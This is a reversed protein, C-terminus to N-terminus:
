KISQQLKAILQRIRDKSSLTKAAPFQSKYKKAFEVVSEFYEIPAVAGTPNNPYNLWMVKAKAAIDQPIAELDPLWQNSELLPMDYVVGGAFITGVGYVPYGPDPILAVDGPDIFCLAAHGIGEKAGILPLVEKNHDLEVGFRKYYWDSISKRLQPLGESEPYRHNSPDQIAEQLRNLVNPPTPIDPDGIAFTVVDAGEARKQAIKRSIEVFLYPPVEAIRRSFKM